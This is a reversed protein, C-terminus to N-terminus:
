LQQPSLPFFLIKPDVDRVVARYILAINSTQFARQAALEILAYRKIRFALDNQGGIVFSPCAVYKARVLGAASEIHVVASAAVPLPM